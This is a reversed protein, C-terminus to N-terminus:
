GHSPLPIPTHCSTVRGPLWADGRGHHQSVFTVAATHAANIPAKGGIGWAAPRQGGGGGASPTGRVREVGAGPPTYAEGKM